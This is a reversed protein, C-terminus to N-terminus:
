GVEGTIGKFALPTSLVTMTSTFGYQSCQSLFDNLSQMSHTQIKLMFNFQGSLQHMEVVDDSQNGFATLRDCNNTQVLIFATISKGLKEPSVITRYSDIIGKEELKRVRESVAPQTMNISRGLESFSIRANQQLAELIKLDIQDM